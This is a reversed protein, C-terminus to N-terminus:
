ELGECVVITFYAPNRVKSDNSELRATCNGLFDGADEVAAASMQAAFARPFGVNDYFALRASSM